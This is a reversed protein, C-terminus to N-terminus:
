TMLPLLLPAISQFMVINFIVNTAAYPFYKPFSGMSTVSTLFAFVAQMGVTIASGLLFIELGGFIGALFGAVPYAPIVWTLYSGKYQGATVQLLILSIGIFAGPVEGYAAGILVTSFTALEVGIQKMNIKNVTWAMTGVGIVLAATVLYGTFLYAGIFLLGLALILRYIRPKKLREVLEKFKESAKAM